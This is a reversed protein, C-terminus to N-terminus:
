KVKLKNRHMNLFLRTFMVACTIQLTAVVGRFALPVQDIFIVKDVLGFNLLSIGIFGAYALYSWERLSLYLLGNYVAMVALAGYFMMIYPTM